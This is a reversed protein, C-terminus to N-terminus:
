HLMQLGDGTRPLAPAPLSLLRSRAGTVLERLQAIEDRSFALSVQDAETRIVYERAGPTSQPATDIEFSEIVELVSGLDAFGLSLIANGLTVEVKDCCSCRM